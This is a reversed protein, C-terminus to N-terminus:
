RKLNKERSGWMSIAETNDDQLNKDENICSRRCGLDGGGM